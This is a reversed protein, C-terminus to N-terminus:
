FKVFREIFLGEKTEIKMTYVGTILNSVNIQNNGNFHTQVVRGDMDHVTIKQIAIGSPHLLFLRDQAPNPFVEFVGVQPENTGVTLDVVKVPRHLPILTENGQMARVNEIEVKMAEKGAINDIVGIFAMIRGHGSVDNQDSRVLPWMLGVM